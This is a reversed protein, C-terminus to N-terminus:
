PASGPKLRSTLMGQSLGLAAELDALAQVAQTPILTGNALLIAWLPRGRPLEAQAIRSTRFVPSPSSM